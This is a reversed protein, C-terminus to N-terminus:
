LLRRFLRLVSPGDPCEVVAGLRQDASIGEAQLRDRRAILYGRMIEADFEPHFQIGWASGISFASNPDGDTSGLRTAADPLRLVSESHSMHIRLGGAFGGLLPDDRAADELSM